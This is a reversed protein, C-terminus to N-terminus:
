DGFFMRGANDYLIQFREKETLFTAHMAVFDKMQQYTYRCLTTPCDSGWLLKEAGMIEYAQQLLLLARKCPYEEALLQGAASIGFSVNELRGLQLLQEYRQKDGGPTMYGLHEFVFHIDPYDRVLGRLEDVLYAAGTTAGTDFIVHLRNAAAVDLLPYVRRYHFDAQPHISLWGWDDSMELKLARFAGTEVLAQLREAADPLFPDVQAAAAFVGPHARVAGAVEGNILGITPNQLLVAKEVDSRAMMELLNDETFTTHDSLPPMFPKVLGGNFVRGYRESTVPGNRNAGHVCYFIHAHIDIAKM